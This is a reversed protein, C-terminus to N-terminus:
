KIEVVKVEDSSAFPYCMKMMAVADIHLDYVYPKSGAGSPRLPKWEYHFGGAIGDDVKIKVHIQFM